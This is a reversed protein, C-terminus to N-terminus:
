YVCSPLHEINRYWIDQNVDIEQNKKIKSKNVM